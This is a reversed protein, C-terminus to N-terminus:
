GLCTSIRIIAVPLIIILLWFTVQKVLHRRRPNV